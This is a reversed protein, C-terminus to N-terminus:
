MGAQKIAIMLSELEDIQRSVLKHFKASDVDEYRGSNRAQEVEAEIIRFQKLLNSFQLRDVEAAMHEIRVLRRRLSGYRDLLLEWAQLRQLNKLEELLAIASSIESLTDLTLIRVKVEEAAKRAQEAASKASIVQWITIALGILGLIDGWNNGPVGDEPKSSLPLDAPM